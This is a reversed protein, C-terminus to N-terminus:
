RVFVWQNEMGQDPCFVYGDEQFHQIAELQNLGNEIMYRAMKGRARKAMLAIVRYQGQRYEKFEVHIVPCQLLRTQISKFYEQSALNILVPESCQAAHQNVAETISSGWYQYLNGGQQTTLTTGMELRHPQILDLPRLLGYLGSLILLHKQAFELAAPSLSGAALGQYVDGQFAFLAPQRPAQDFAQFREFNLQGLAPSISMLKQLDAASQAQLVEILEATRQQFIPQTCKLHAPLLGDFSQRKAPSIVMLLTKNM